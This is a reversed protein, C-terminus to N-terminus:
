TSTPGPEVSPGYRRRSTQNVSATMQPVRTADLGVHEVAGEKPPERASGRRRRAPPHDPAAVHQERAKQPVQEVRPVAVPVCLSRVAGLEGIADLVASVPGYRSPFARTCAEAHREEGRANAVNKPASPPKPRTALYPMPTPSAILRAIAAGEAKNIEYRTVYAAHRTMRLEVPDLWIRECSRAPAMPSTTVGMGALPRPSTVAM